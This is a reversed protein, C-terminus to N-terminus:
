AAETWVTRAIAQWDPVRLAGEEAIFHFRDLAREEAEERWRAAILHTAAQAASVGGRQVYAAVMWEHEPENPDPDRMHVIWHRRGRHLYYADIRSSLPHWAWEVTGLYTMDRPLRKPLFEPRWLLCVTIDHPPPAPLDVVEVLRQRPLADPTLPLHPTHIMGSDERCARAGRRRPDDM